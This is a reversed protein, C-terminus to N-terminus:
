IPAASFPAKPKVYNSDLVVRLQKLSGDSYAGIKSNLILLYKTLMLALPMTLLVRTYTTVSITIIGGFDPKLFNRSTYCYNRM